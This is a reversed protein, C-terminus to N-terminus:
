SIAPVGADTAAVQRSALMCVFVLALRVLPIAPPKPPRWIEGSKMLRETLSVLCSTIRPLYHTLAKDLILAHTILTQKTAGMELSDASFEHEGRKGGAPWAIHSVNLTVHEDLLRRFPNPRVDLGSYWYWREM